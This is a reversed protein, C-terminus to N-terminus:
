NEYDEFIVKINESPWFVDHYPSYFSKNSEYRMLKLENEDNFRCWYYRNPTLYKKPIRSRNINVYGEFMVRTNNSGIPQNNSEFIGHGSYKIHNLIRYDNNSCWYDKGPILHKKPILSNKM